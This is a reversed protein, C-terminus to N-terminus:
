PFKPNTGYTNSGKQGPAAGLYLMVLLNIWPVLLTLAFWGSRGLDHWRRVYTAFAIWVCPLGVFLWAFYLGALLPGTAESNSEAVQGVVAGIVVMILNVGFLAALTGWYRGRTIRGEFSFIDSRHSKGDDNNAETSIPKRSIDVFWEDNDVHGVLSGARIMEMVEGEFLGALKAYKQVTVLNPTVDDTDM